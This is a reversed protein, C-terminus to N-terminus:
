SPFILFSVKSLVKETSCLNWTFYVPFVSKRRYFLSISLHFCSWIYAQLLFQLTWRKDLFNHLTLPIEKPDALVYFFFLKYRSLDLQEKCFRQNERLSFFLCKILLFFIRVSLCTGTISPMIQVVFASNISKNRSGYMSLTILGPQTPCYALHHFSWFALSHLCYFSNPAM